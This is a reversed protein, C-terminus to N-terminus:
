YRDLIERTLRNRSAEYDEWPDNKLASLRRQLNTITYRNSSENPALEDWRLPTAVTAQPRARASFRAVSTNGRDNRLYDIFVRGKRSSKALEVTLKNPDDQAHAQAVGHAFDKIVPWEWEAHVPVIVHLGKGGSAQLFCALGAEQLRERLSTAAYALQSWPVDPGPDLDFILTDPTELQDVTAGWPHFEIVGYQVLAVVHEITSVYMYPQNKGSREAITIVQAAEDLTDTPHKQYFCDGALGEPCRVLSLPRNALFPLIQAEVGAYYEALDLKTLGREPYIVRDASTIEVGAVRPNSM